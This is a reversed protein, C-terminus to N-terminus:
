RFPKTILFSLFTSKWEPTRERDGCAETIARLVVIAGVTKGNHLFPGVQRGSWRLEATM